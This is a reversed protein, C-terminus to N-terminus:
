FLSSKLCSKTRQVFLCLHCVEPQTCYFANVTRNLPFFFGEPILTKNGVSACLLHKFIINFNVNFCSWCTKTDDGDDPLTCNSSALTVNTLITSQKLLRLKPLSLNYAAQHHHHCQFM